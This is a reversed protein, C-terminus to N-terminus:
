GWICISSQISSRSARWRPAARPPPPSATNLLSCRSRNSILLRSFKSVASRWPHARRSVLGTRGNAREGTRGNPVILRVSPAIQRGEDSSLFWCCENAPQVVDCRYRVLLRKQTPWPVVRSPCDPTCFLEDSLATSTQGVASRLLAPRCPGVALGNNTCAASPIAGLSQVRNDSYDFGIFGALL